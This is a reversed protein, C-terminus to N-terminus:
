KGLISNLDKFKKVKGLRLDNKSKEIGAVVHNPYNLTQNTEHYDVQLAKLAAKVAKIAEENELHITITKM